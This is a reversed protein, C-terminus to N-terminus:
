TYGVEVIIRQSQYVVIAYRITPQVVLGCQANILNYIDRLITLEAWVMEVVVLGAVSLNVRGGDRSGALGSARRRTVATRQLQKMRLLDRGDM